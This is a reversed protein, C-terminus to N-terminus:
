RPFIKAGLHPYFARFVPSADLALGQNRTDDSALERRKRFIERDVTLIQVRLSIPTTQRQQM